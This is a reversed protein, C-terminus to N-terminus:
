QFEMSMADKLLTAPRNLLKELYISKIAITKARGTYFDTDPEVDVFNFDNFVEEQFIRAIDYRSLLQRGCIHFIQNNWLEWTQFLNYICETVDNIYVVNRFLSDFVEAVKKEVACSELYKTFKDKKSWVYSLRFIKILKSDKFHEEVERKMDAYAGFPAVPANEDSICNAKGYVVDSSFFLVRAEKKICNEIFIETGEVNIKYAYERKKECIDPSSVAAFFVIADDRKITTFDFDNPKNLDVFDNKDESFQSLLRVNLRNGYNELFRKSIYSDSGLIHYKL